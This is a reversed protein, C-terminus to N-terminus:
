SINQSIIAKRLKNIIYFCDSKTLGIYIPLALGYASMDESMPFNGKKFGFKKKYFDFLHISPLYPRTGIGIKILDKILLNRNVKKNKIKIVYVFWTHTNNIATVPAQILDEYPELIENYWGAIERRESIMFDLKALQSVGLAASMEDLRYNYGLYKHDLWQTDNSRGQNRLSRCLDYIRKKNTVIMGGEGTTM